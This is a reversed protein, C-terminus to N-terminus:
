GILVMLVNLVDDADSAGHDPCCINVLTLSKNAAGLV